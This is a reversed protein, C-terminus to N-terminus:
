PSRAAQRNAKQIVRRVASPNTGRHIRKVEIRVERDSGQSLVIDSVGDEEVRRADFGRFRLWGWYYLEALVDAFGEASLLNSVTRVRTAEHPLFDWFYEGPAEPAWLTTSLYERLAEMILGIRDAPLKQGERRLEQLDHWRVAAPHTPDSARLAALNPDAFMLELQRCLTAVMDPVEDGPITREWEVEGRRSHETVIAM